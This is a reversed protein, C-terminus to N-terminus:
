QKERVFKGVMGSVSPIATVGMFALPGPAFCGHQRSGDVFTIVVKSSTGCKPNDPVKRATMVIREIKSLELAYVADDFEDIFSISGGPSFHGKEIKNGHAPTFTFTPDGSSKRNAQAMGYSSFLFAGVALLVTRDVVQGV